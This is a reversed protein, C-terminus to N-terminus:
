DIDWVGHLENIAREDSGEYVRRVHALTRSIKGTEDAGQTLLEQVRARTEEYTAVLGTGESLWSLEHSSLRLSECSAGATQLTESTGAWQASDKTLAELAVTMETM